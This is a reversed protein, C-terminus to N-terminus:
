RLISCIWLRTTIVMVQRGETHKYTSLDCVCMIVWENVSVMRMRNLLNVITKGSDATIDAYCTMVCCLTLVSNVLEDQEDTALCWHTSYSTCSKVAWVIFNSRLQAKYVSFKWQMETKVVPSITWNNWYFWDNLGQEEMKLTQRWFLDKEMSVGMVSSWQPKIEIVLSMHRICSANTKTQRCSQSHCCVWWTSDQRTVGFFSVFLQLDDFSNYNTNCWIIPKTKLIDTWRAVENSAM